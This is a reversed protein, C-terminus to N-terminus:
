YCMRVSGCSARCAVLVFVVVVMVSVVSSLVAAAVELTKKLNGSAGYTKATPRLLSTAQMM